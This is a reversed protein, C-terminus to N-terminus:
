RRKRINNHSSLNELTIVIILASLNFVMNIKLFAQFCFHKESKATRNYFYVSAYSLSVIKDNEFM